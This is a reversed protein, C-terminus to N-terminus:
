CYMQGIRENNQYWAKGEMKGNEHYIILAPLHTEKNLSNKDFTDRHVKGNQYWVEKIIQGTESRVILPINCFSHEKGDDFWMIYKEIGNKHYSILAPLYINEKIYSQCKGNKYWTKGKVNENEYYEILAPLYTNNELSSERKGNQYWRETKKNRNEYYEIWAPLNDRHLEGDKYWQEEKKNGNEYYEIWAPLDDERHNKGNKFWRKNGVKGNKHYYIVFPLGRGEDNMYCIGEQYWGEAKKEGSEFWELWAPNNVRHLKGEKFWKKVKINGSEYYEIYAPLYDEKGHLQGDLFWEELKLYFKEYTKICTRNEVKEEEKYNGSQKQKQKERIENQRKVENWDIQNEDESDSEIENGYLSFKSKEKTEEGDIVKRELPSVSYFSFMRKNDGFGDRFKAKQELKMTNYRNEFCTELSNDIWIENPIKYFSELDDTDEIYHNQKSNMVVKLDDRSVAIYVNESLVFVILNSCPKLNQLYVNQKVVCKSIYSM